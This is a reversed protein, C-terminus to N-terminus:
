SPAGRGRKRDGPQSTKPEPVLLRDPTTRLAKALQALVSVTVNRLRREVQSVYTRDVAAAHALEEQSLGAAERLSRVNAAVTRIVGTPDSPRKM